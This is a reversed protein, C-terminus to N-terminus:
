LLKLCPFLTSLASSKLHAIQLKMKNDGDNSLILTLVVHCILNLSEPMVFKAFLTRIKAM